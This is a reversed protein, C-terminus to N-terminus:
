CGVQIADLDGCGTSLSFLVTVVGISGSDEKWLIPPM